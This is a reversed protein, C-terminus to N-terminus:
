AMVCVKVAGGKGIGALSSGLRTSDFATWWGQVVWPSVLCGASYGGIQGAVDSKDEVDVM